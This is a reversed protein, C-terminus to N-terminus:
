AIMTGHTGDKVTSNKKKRGIRSAKEERVTTGKEITQHWGLDLYGSSMGFDDLARERYFLAYQNDTFGWVTTIHM